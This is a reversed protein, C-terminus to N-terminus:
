KNLMLLLSLIRSFLIAKNVHIIFHVANSYSHYKWDHILKNVKCLIIFSFFFSSFVVTLVHCESLHWWRFIMLENRLRQSIHSKACHEYYITFRWWGIAIWCVWKWNLVQVHWCLSNPGNDNQCTWLNMPDDFELHKSVYRLFMEYDANCNRICLAYYFILSWLYPYRIRFSITIYQQRTGDICITMQSVNSYPSLITIATILM